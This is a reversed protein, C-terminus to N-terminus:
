FHSSVLRSWTAQRLAFRRDVVRRLRAAEATPRVSAQTRPILCGRRMFGCRIVDAGNVCVDSKSVCGPLWNGTPPPRFCRSSVVRETGSSRLCFSSPSQYGLLWLLIGRGM